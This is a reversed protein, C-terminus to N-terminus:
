IAKSRREALIETIPSRSGISEIKAVAWQEALTAGAFRFDSFDRAGEYILRARQDQARRRLERLDDADDSALHPRIHAFVQEAIQRRHADSLSRLQEMERLFRQTPGILFSAM